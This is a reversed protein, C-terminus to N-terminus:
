KKYRFTARGILKGFSASGAKGGIAPWVYWVYIGPKLKGKPIRYSAKTPWGVLVRKGKVYVQVNYYTTGKFAKWTLLPSATRIVSGTLPRLPILAALKVTTRVPELSVNGSKDYAYVAFYGTQGAKLKVDASTGLGHYVDKGDSPLKPEHQLNLIVVVRDLDGATPNVWHLTVVINTAPAKAKARTTTLKTPALPPTKDQIVVGPVTGILAVNGAADRAFFSYSWTGSSVTADACGPTAPACISVGDSPGPPTAGSARRVAYGAVGSLADTAAPWALLVSADPQVQATPAGGTVPPTKDYTVKFSASLVGPHSTADIAMVAYDHLGEAATTDTYTLVPTATSALLSGDRYIDYHAVAFTVPPQWTLVPSAATPTVAALTQPASVATSDVLVAVANSAVFNGAADYARVTYTSTAHDPAAKDAFALVQGAAVSGIVTAGRLVDYRSLLIADHAATWSLTPSGAVTPPGTLVPAVDPITNDVIVQIVASYGINGANDTIQARLFDPGDGVAAATTNFVQPYGAGATVAAGLAVWAGAAAPARQYQVNRIGSADTATSTLAVTAGHVYPLTLPAIPLPSTMAGTPLTNDVVVTAPTSPASVNNSPDTAVDCILYTGDVVTASNWPSTIVPSTGDCGTTGLHLVNTATNDNSSATITVAGHVPNPSGIVPTNAIPATTDVNVTVNLGDSYATLPAMTIPDLNDAEVYYCYTGNPVNTDTATGTTPGGAAGVQTAGGIPTASCPVNARWVEQTVPPDASSPTWNITVTSALPTSGLTPTSGATAAHATAPVMVAVTAAIAVFIHRRAM